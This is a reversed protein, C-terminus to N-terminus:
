WGREPHPRRNLKLPESFGSTGKFGCSHCRWNTEGRLPASRQLISKIGKQYCNACLKHDPESGRDADKIGYVFLGPPLEELQYRLKEAEWRHFGAVEKELDGLRQILASQQSQADLIERQLTLVARDRVTTDHIDSLGRATNFLQTFIQLGTVAEVVM